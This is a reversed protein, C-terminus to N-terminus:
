ANGGAGHSAYVHARQDNTVIERLDPAPRKLVAQGDVITVLEWGDAGLRNLDGTPITGAADLTQYEWTQRDHHM